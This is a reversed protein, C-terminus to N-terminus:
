DWGTAIDIVFRWLSDLFSRLKVEIECFVCQINDVIYIYIYTSYTYMGTWMGSVLSSINSGLTYSSLKGKVPTYESRLNTKHQRTSLTYYQTKDTRKIYNGM